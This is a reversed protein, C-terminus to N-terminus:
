ILSRLAQEASPYQFEFGAENLKEPIVFRSKLILETETKIIRAGFELLFKPIPLGFSRGVATRLAKMFKSNTLPFPASMNVPGSLNENKLIFEVSTCFDQLHIWSFMQNGKGQRGGMWFKALQKMPHLAGGNKGLVITTRLAVQRVDKYTFDFFSEEWRKCVDVSFGSGIEHDRETM